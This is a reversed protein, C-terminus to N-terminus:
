SQEQSFPHVAQCVLGDACSKGFKGCQKIVALRNESFFSATCYYRTEIELRSLVLLGVILCMCRGARASARVTVRAVLVVADCPWQRLGHVATTGEPMGDM